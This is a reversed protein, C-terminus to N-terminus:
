YHCHTHGDVSLVKESLNRHFGDPFQTIKIKRWRLFYGTAMLILKRCKSSTMEKHLIASRFNGADQQKKLNQLKIVFLM